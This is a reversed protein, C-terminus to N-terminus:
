AARQALNEPKSAPQEARELEYEHISVIGMFTGFFAHLLLLILFCTVGYASEGPAESPLLLPALPLVPLLIGILLGSFIWQIIGFSMGIGWGVHGLSNFGFRYLIGALAGCLGYILWNEFSSFPGFALGLLNGPIFEPIWGVLGVGRCAAMPIETLGAAILGTLAMQWYPRIETQKVLEIM